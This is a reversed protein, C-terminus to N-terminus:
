EILDRLNISSQSSKIFTSFVRSFASEVLYSTPFAIVYIQARDWFLPYKTAVDNTKWVNYKGDKFKTRMIEDSQLEILHEQLSIDKDAVNVKFPISVWTPIVMMLLDSFQIQMDKRMNEMYEGYLALDEDQLDSSVSALCPFQESARCRIDNKYLQLKRLFAVIAIRSSILDSDKGQLETHLVLREFEEGNQKYLEQFLRDRFSNSKIRNFVQIVVTLADHLRASLKKAVLHQRHIVCHICFIEPVAKKLHAIFGKYRGTMSPAGNTACAIINKLPINNQQFYTVVENFITEGKTDTVLSRALLMEEKHGEDSNFRVYALLIAENDRLTSEDLQIAFKTLSAIFSPGIITKKSRKLRKIRIKELSKVCREATSKASPRDSNRVPSLEPSRRALTKPIQSIVQTEEGVKCDGKINLGLPVERRGSADRHKSHDTPNFKKGGAQLMVTTPAMPHQQVARLINGSKGTKRKPQSGVAMSSKRKSLIGWKQFLGVNVTTANKIVERVVEDPFLDKGWISSSILKRTEHKLTAAVYVSERCARRAKMSAYLDKVLTAMHM